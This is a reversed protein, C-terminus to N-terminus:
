FFSLLPFFIQAYAGGVEITTIYSRNLAYSGGSTEDIKKIMEPLM